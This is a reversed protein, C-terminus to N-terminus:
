THCVLINSQLSFNSLYPQSVSFEANVELMNTIGLLRHIANDRKYIIRLILNIIVLLINMWEVTFLMYKYTHINKIGHCFKFFRRETENRISRM